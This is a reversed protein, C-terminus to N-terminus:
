FLKVESRGIEQIYICIKRGGQRVPTQATLPSTELLPYNPTDCRTPTPFQQLNRHHVQVLFVSLTFNRSCTNHPSARVQQHSIHTFAQGSVSLSSKHLLYRAESNQLQQLFVIHLFVILAQTSIALFLYCTDRFYNVRSLSFETVGTLAEGQESLINTDRM